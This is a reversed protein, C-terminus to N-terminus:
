GGTGCLGGDDVGNGTGSVAGVTVGVDVDAM